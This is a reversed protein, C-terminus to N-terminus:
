RSKRWIKGSGPFFRTEDYPPDYDANQESMEDESNTVSIGTDNYKFYDAASFSAAWHQITHEQKRHRITVFMGTLVFCLCAAVIGVGAIVHRKPKKSAEEILDADIWGLKDLFEYGRM